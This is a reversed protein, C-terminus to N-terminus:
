AKLAKKCNTLNPLIRKKASCNRACTERHTSINDMGKEGSERQTVAEELEQKLGDIKQKLDEYKSNNEIYEKKNRALSEEQLSLQKPVDEIQKLIKYKESLVGQLKELNDFVKTDLTKEM